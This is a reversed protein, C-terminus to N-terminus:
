ARAMMAAAVWIPTGGAFSALALAAAAEQLYSYYLPKYRVGIPWGSLGIPRTSRSPGGLPTVQRIPSRVLLDRRIDVSDAKLHGCTERM